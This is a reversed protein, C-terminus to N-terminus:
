VIVFAFYPVSGLLYLVEIDEVPSISPEPNSIARRLVRSGREERQGGDEPVSRRQKYLQVRARAVAIRKHVDVYIDTEDLIEEGILEEIVDEM